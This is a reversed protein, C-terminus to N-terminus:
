FVMDKFERYTALQPSRPFAHPRKGVIYTYIYIYIYM